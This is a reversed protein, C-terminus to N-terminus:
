PEFYHPSIFNELNLADPATVVPGGVFGRSKLSDLRAGSIIYGKSDQLRIDSYRKNTTSLAIAQQSLVNSINYFVASTDEGITMRGSQIAWYNGVRIEVEHGIVSGSKDARGFLYANPNFYRGRYDVSDGRPSMGEEFYTLAPSQIRGLGTFLLSPTQLFGKQELNYQVSGQYDKPFPVTQFKNGGYLVFFNKLQPYNTPYAGRNLIEQVQDAPAYPYVNLGGDGQLFPIINLSSNYPYGLQLRGDPFITSVTDYNGRVPGINHPAIWRNFTNLPYTGGAQFLQLGFNPLVSFINQANLGYVKSFYSELLWFPFNPNGKVNLLNVHSVSARATAGIGAAGVGNAQFYTNSNAAFSQPTTATLPQSGPSLGLYPM